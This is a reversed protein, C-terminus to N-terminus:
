LTQGITKSKEDYYLQISLKQFNQLHLKKMQKRPAKHTLDRALGQPQLTLKTHSRTLFGVCGMM